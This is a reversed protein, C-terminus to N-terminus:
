MLLAFHSIESVSHSLSYRILPLIWFVCLVWVVWCWFVFILFSCLAQVSIKGFLGVSVDFSTWCWKLTVLWRPFAFWFWLFTDGGGTVIDIILCIIFSLHQHSHHLFPFDQASNTPLYAPAAVISFLMSIGWFILFLVVLHALLEVEPNKDM